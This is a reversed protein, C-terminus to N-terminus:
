GLPYWIHEIPSLRLIPFALSPYYSTTPYVTKHWGQRTLGLMAKNFFPEQFSNCSHCRMHNCSIDHVHRQATMHHRPDISPTVTYQLCHCGM